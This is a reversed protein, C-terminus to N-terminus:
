PEEGIVRLFNNSLAKCSPVQLPVAAARGCAPIFNFPKESAILKSCFDIRHFRTLRRLSKTTEEGSVPNLRSSLTCPFSIFHFSHLWSSREGQGPREEEEKGGEREWNWFQENLIQKATCFWLYSLLWQDSKRFKFHFIIWMSHQM